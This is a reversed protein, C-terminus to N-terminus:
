GSRSLDLVYDSDHEVDAVSPLVPLEVSGGVGLCHVGLVIWLQVGDPVLPWLAREKVWLYPEVLPDARAGPAGTVLALFAVTAVSITIVAARRM